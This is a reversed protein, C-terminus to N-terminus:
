NPLADCYDRLPHNEKNKGCRHAQYYISITLLFEEKLETRTVTLTSVLATDM